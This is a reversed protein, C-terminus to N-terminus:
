KPLTLCLYLWNAALLAGGIKWWPWHRLRGKVGNLLLRGSFKEVLWLALWILLAVCLLFFLPNFRFAQELDFLAWSALSRTCGCAPCPIGTLKRLACFPLPLQWRMAFHVAVAVAVVAVLALVPQWRQYFLVSPLDSPCDGGTQGSSVLRQRVKM